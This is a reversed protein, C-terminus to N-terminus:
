EVGRLRRILNPLKDRVEYAGRVQSNNLQADELRQIIDPTAKTVVRDLIGMLANAQAYNDSAAFSNILSDVLRPTLIPKAWLLDYVEKALIDSMKGLGSVAQYKGIFGYPDVGLRIPIIPVQRGIAVGVEQDTWNSNAYNETMLAVMADMSFLAKEIEDQWEKTPEIDEHAVFCSVGFLDMAVKFESTQKKYNAKHSLFLRLYGPKWLKHLQEQSGIMAAPTPHLLAGSQERWNPEDPIEPFGCPIPGSERQALSGKRNGLIQNL